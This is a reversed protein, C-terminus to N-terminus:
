HSYEHDYAKLNDVPNNNTSVLWCMFIVGAVFTIIGGLIQRENQNLDSFLFKITKM